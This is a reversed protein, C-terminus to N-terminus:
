LEPHAASLQYVNTEFIAAQRISQTLYCKFSDSGVDLPIKEKYKMWSSKLIFFILEEFM